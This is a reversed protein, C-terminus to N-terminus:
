GVVPSKKGSLLDVVEEFVDLVREAEAPTIVLPPKIKVVNGNGAYKSQGFLVGRRYGEEVFRAAEQTAKERTVRDRVLEIGIM